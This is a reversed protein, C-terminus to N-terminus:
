PADEEFREIPGQVVETVESVGLFAPLLEPATGTVTARVQEGPVAVVSVSVGDLVGRGLDAAYSVGKAEGQAPDGTVRAVRAAERAAASAAEKGLYVLSFQVTLLIAIMLLPMYLVLEIASTGEDGHRRRTTM